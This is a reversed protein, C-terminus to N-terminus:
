TGPTIAAKYRKRLEKTTIREGTVQNIFYGDVIPNQWNNKITWEVFAIGAKTDISHIERLSALLKDEDAFVDEVTQKWTKREM